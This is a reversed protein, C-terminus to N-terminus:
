SLITSYNLVSKVSEETDYLGDVNCLLLMNTSGRGTRVEQLMTGGLTKGLTSGGLKSRDM